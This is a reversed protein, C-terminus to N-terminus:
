FLDFGSAGNKQKAPGSHHIEIGKLAHDGFTSELATRIYKGIFRDRLAIRNSADLLHNQRRVPGTPQKREIRFDAAHHVVVKFEYQAAQRGSYALAGLELRDPLHTALRDSASVRNKRNLGRM